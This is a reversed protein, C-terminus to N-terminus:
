LMIKEPTVTERESRKKYSKQKFILEAFAYDDLPIENIGLEKLRPLWEEKLTKISDNIKNSIVWNIRSAIDEELKEDFIEDRLIDLEVDKLELIVKDNILIKM